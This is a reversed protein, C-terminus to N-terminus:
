KKVDFAITFHLYVGAKFRRVTKLDSESAVKGGIELGPGLVDVQQFAVGAGFSALDYLTIGAGALLGLRDTPQVGIEFFGGFTQDTWGRPTITLVAAIGEAQYQEQDPEEIIEFGGEVEKTGYKENGVFSYIIAAGVGLKVPSYPVFRISFDGSIQKAHVSGTANADVREINLSWVQDLKSNYQVSGLDLAKQMDVLAKRFAAVKGAGDLITLRRLQLLTSGIFFPEDALGPEGAAALELFAAQGKDIKAFADILRKQLDVVDENGCFEDPKPRSGAALSALDKGMAKLCEELRKLDGLLDQLFKVSNDIDAKSLAQEVLQRSRVLPDQRAKRLTEAALKDDIARSELANLSKTVTSSTSGAGVVANAALKKAEDAKTVGGLNELLTGLAGAFAAAAQYNESDTVASKKWVYRFFVPNPNEIQICLHSEGPSLILPESVKGSVLEVSSGKADQLTLTEGHTLVFRCTRSEGSGAGAAPAGTALHSVVLVLGILAIQTGM